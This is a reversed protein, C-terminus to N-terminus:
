TLDKECTKVKDSKVLQKKDLELMIDLVQDLASKQYDACESGSLTYLWKYLDAWLPHETVIMKSIKLLTLVRSGYFRLPEELEMEDQLLRCQEECLEREIELRSVLETLKANKGRNM